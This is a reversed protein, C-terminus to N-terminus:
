VRTRTLQPCAAGQNQDRFWRCDKVYSNWHMRTLCLNGIFRGPPYDVRRRSIMAPHALTATHGTAAGACPMMM